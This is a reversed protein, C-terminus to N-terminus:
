QAMADLLWLLFDLISLVIVSIRSRGWGASAAFIGFLAALGGARICALEVPHYFSYGGTYSAHVYLFLNLGTSVTAAVLGLGLSAARWNRM